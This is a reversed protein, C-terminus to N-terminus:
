LGTGKSENDGSVNAQQLAELSVVHMEPIRRHEYVHHRHPETIRSSPLYKPACLM